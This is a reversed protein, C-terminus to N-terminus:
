VAWENRTGNSSIRQANGRYRALRRSLGKVEVCLTRGDVVFELDCGCNDTQRDNSPRGLVRVPCAKVEYPVEFDRRDEPIMFCRDVRARMLYGVREAGVQRGQLRGVQIQRYVRADHYWGAVLRRGDEHPATWIVTVGEVFTDQADAGLRNINIAQHRTQVYGYCVGRSPTFNFLEHGYGERQPYDFGGAYFEAEGAYRAM